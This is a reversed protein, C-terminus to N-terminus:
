LIKKVKLLRGQHDSFQQIIKESKSSLVKDQRLKSIKDQPNYKSCKFEYEQVKQVYDLIDSLQKTFKKIEKPSIKIRALDALKKVEEARM